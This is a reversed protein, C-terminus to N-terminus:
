VGGKAAIEIYGSDEPKILSDGVESIVYNEKLSDYRKKGLALILENKNRALGIANGIAAAYTAPLDGDLSFYNRYLNALINNSNYHLIKNKADFVYFISSPSNYIRALKELEPNKDQHALCVITFVDKKVNIKPLVSNNVFVCYIEVKEKFLGYKSYVFYKKRDFQVKWRNSSLEHNVNPILKPPSNALKQYILEFYNQIEIDTELLARRYNGVKKAIETNPHAREFNILKISLSQSNIPRIKREEYLAKIFSIYDLIAKEEKAEFNSNITQELPLLVKSFLNLARYEQVLNTKNYIDFTNIPKILNQELTNIKNSIDPHDYKVLEELTTLRSKITKKVEAIDTIINKVKYKEYIEILTNFNPVILEKGGVISALIDLM